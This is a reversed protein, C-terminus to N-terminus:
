AVHWAVTVTTSMVAGTIVVHAGFASTAAVSASHLAGSGFRVPDTVAVSSHAPATTIVCLGNAPVGTPRPAVRTVRVAVSAAPLVAVHWAVTVTFEPREALTFEAVTHAPPEATNVADVVAVVGVKAQLGPLAVVAEM